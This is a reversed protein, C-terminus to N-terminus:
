LADAANSASRAVNYRLGNPSPLGHQIRAGWRDAHHALRSVDLPGLPGPDQRARVAAAPLKKLRAVQHRGDYARMSGPPRGCACPPMVAAIAPSKDRM